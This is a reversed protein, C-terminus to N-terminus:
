YGGAPFTARLANRLRERAAPILDPRMPYAGLTEPLHTQIFEPTIHTAAMAPALETMWVKFMDAQPVSLFPDAGVAAALATSPTLPLGPPLPPTPPTPAQVPPAPVPTPGPIAMVQKLEAEVQAVLEETVGQRRRWTKDKNVAKTSSHIKANWPFGRADVAVGVAPASSPANAIPAAAVAPGAPANPLTGSAQLDAISPGFGITAPDLQPLAPPTPVGGGFGVKAPDVTPPTPAPLTVFQAPAHAAATPAGPLPPVGADPRDAPAIPLPAAAPQGQSVHYVATRDGTLLFDAVNKMVASNAAEQETLEVIRM